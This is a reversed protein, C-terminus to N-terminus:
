IRVGQDLSNVANQYVGIVESWRDSFNKVLIQQMDGTGINKLGRPGMHKRIIDQMSRIEEVEKAEEPSAPRPTWSPCNEDLKLSTTMAYMPSGPPPRLLVELRCEKATSEVVGKNGHGFLLAFNEPTDKGTVVLRRVTMQLSDYPLNLGIEKALAQAKPDRTAFTKHYTMYDITSSSTEGGTAQKCMAKHVKWDQKQCDKSCYNVKKCASCTMLGNTSGSQCGPSGCSSSVSSAM